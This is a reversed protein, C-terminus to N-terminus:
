YLHVSAHTIVAPVISFMTCDNDRVHGDSEVANVCAMGDGADSSDFVLGITDGSPLKSEAVDFPGFKRSNVAVTGTVSFHDVGSGGWNVTLSLGTPGSGGDAGNGAPAAGCGAAVLAALVMSRGLSM